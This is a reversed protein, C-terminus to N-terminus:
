EGSLYFTFMVADPATGATQWESRFHYLGRQLWVRHRPLVDNPQVPAIPRHWLITAIKDSEMGEDTGYQGVSHEYLWAALGSNWKAMAWVIYTPNRALPRTSYPSDNLNLTYGGAEPLLEYALWEEVKRLVPYSSYDTGDFREAGIM